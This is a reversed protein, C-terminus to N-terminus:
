PRVGNLDLLTDLLRYGADADTETNVSPPIHRPVLSTRYEQLYDNEAQNESRRPVPRRYNRYRLGRSLVRGHKDRKDLLRRSFLRQEGAVTLVGAGVKRSIIIPYDWASLLTDAFQHSRVPWAEYLRIGDISSSRRSGTARGLPIAPVQFSFAEALNEFGDSHRADLTIVARGGSHLFEQLRRISQPSFERTPGHIILRQGPLRDWRDMDAMLPIFGEDYLHTFLPAPSWDFRSYLDWNELHGNDIIVLRDEQAPRPLPSRSLWQSGTPIIFALLLVFTTVPDIAFLMLLLLGVSLLIWGTGALDLLPPDIMRGIMELNFRWTQPTSLSMLGSTDGIVLLSGRGLKERAVLTIMGVPEGPDIRSNGLFARDAASVDGKDSFAYVGQILPCAPYHTQLSGGVSIGLDTSRQLTHVLPDLRYFQNYPWESHKGMAIASDFNLRIHAGYELFSNVGTQIDHVNTHDGVIVVHGGSRIFDYWCDLLHAPIKETPHILFLVDADTLHDLEDDSRIEVRAGFLEYLKLWAGMRPGPDKGALTMDRSWEGAERVVIRTNNLRLPQFSYISLTLLLAGTLVLVVATGKLWVKGQLRARTFETPTLVHSLTLAVWLIWPTIFIRNRFLDPSLLALWVLQLLFLFTTITLLLYTRRRRLPFRVITLFIFLLWINGGTLYFSFQTNTGTISDLLRNIPVTMIQDLPMLRGLLHLLMVPFFLFATRAGADFWNKLKQDTLDHGIGSLLLGLPLLRFPPPVPIMILTLFFQWTVGWLSYGRTRSVCFWLLPTLLAILITQLDPTIVPMVGATISLLSLLILTSIFNAM